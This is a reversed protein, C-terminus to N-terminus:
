TNLESGDKGKGVGKGMGKRGGRGEMLVLCVWVCRGNDGGGRWEEGRVRGGVMGRDM